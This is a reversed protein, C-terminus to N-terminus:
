LKLHLRGESLCRFTLFHTVGAPLANGATPCCTCLGQPSSLNLIGWPDQGLCTAPALRLPSSPPSTLFETKSRSLPLHGCAQLQPGMGLQLYFFKPADCPVQFWPTLLSGWPHTPTLPSLLGLCRPVDVNVLCPPPSSDHPRM